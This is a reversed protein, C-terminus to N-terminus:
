DNKKAAAAIIGGMGGSKIVMVAIGVLLGLIIWLWFFVKKKIKDWEEGLNALTDWVNSQLWAGINDNIKKMLERITTINATIFEGTIEMQAQADKLMKQSGDIANQTIVKGSDLANQTISKLEENMKNIEALLSEEIGSIENELILGFEDFKGLFVKPDMGATAKKIDDIIDQKMKNLDKKMGDLVRDDVNKVNYSIENVKDRMRKVRGQIDKIWDFMGM